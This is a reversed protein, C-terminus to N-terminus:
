LLDATAGARAQTDLGIGARKSSCSFFFSSVFSSSLLRRIKPSPDPVDDGESHLEMESSSLHASVLRSLCSLSLRVRM